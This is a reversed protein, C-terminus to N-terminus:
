VRGPYPLYSLALLVLVSDNDGGDLCTTKGLSVLPILGQFVPSPFSLAKVIGRFRKRLGMFASDLDLMM